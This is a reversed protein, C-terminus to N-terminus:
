GVELVRQACRQEARRETQAALDQLSVRRPAREEPLSSLYCHLFAQWHSADMGIEEAPGTIFSLYLPALDDAITELTLAGKLPAVGDLDVCWMEVKGTAHGVLWNPEKMDRNRFGSAHLKSITEAMARLAQERKAERQAPPCDSLFRWPSDGEIWRSLLCAGERAQLCALPEPVCMGAARLSRGWWFSRVGRPTRLGLKQLVMRLRHPRDRKAVLTGLESEVLAVHRKSSANELHVRNVGFWDKWHALWSRALAEHVPPAFVIRGEPTKLVRLGDRAEKTRKWGTRAM